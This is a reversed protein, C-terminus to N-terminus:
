GRGWALIGAVDLTSLMGIPRRGDRDLVVAHSTDREAMARAAAELPEDAMVTLPETAPAEGASLDELRGACAVIDRDTVIAWTQPDGGRLVVIAHVHESTMGRAVEVLPDSADCTLVRPRMADAVRAHAFSPTLYSGARAPLHIAMGAM